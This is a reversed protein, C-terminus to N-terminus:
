RSEKERQRAPERHVASDCAQGEGDPEVDRDGAHYNEHEELRKRVLGLISGAHIKLAYSCFVSRNVETNAVTPVNLRPSDYSFSNSSSGRTGFESSDFGLHKM